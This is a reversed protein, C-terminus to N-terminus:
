DHIKRLRIRPQKFKEGEVSSIYRDIQETTARPKGEEISEVEVVCARPSGAARNEYALFKSGKKVPVSLDAFWFDTEVMGDRLLTAFDEDQPLHIEETPQQEHGFTDKTIEKM